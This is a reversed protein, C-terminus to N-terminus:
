PSKRKRYEMVLNILDSYCEQADHLTDFSIEVQPKPGSKCVAFGKLISRSLIDGLHENNPLNSM